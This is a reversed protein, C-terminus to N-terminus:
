LYPKITIVKTNEASMKNKWGYKLSKLIFYTTNGIIDVVEIKYGDEGYDKTYMDNLLNMTEIHYHNTELNMGNKFDPLTEGSFLGCGKFIIEKPLIEKNENRSVGYINYGEANYYNEYDKNHSAEVLDNQDCKEEDIISEKVIVPNIDINNQQCYLYISGFFLLLLLLLKLKHKKAFKM